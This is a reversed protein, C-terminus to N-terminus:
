GRPGIAGLPQARRAAPFPTLWAMAMIAAGAVGAGVDGLTDRALRSRGARAALHRLQSTQMFRVHVPRIWAVTSGSPRRSPSARTCSRAPADDRPGPARARVDVHGALLTCSAPERLPDAQRSRRRLPQRPCATRGPDFQSCRSSWGGRQRRRSSTEWPSTSCSPASRGHARHAPTTSFTSRTSGAAVVVRSRCSGRGPDGRADSTDHNRADDPRRRAATARRRAACAGARTRGPCRLPPSARRTVRAPHLALRARDLALVAHVEGLVRRGDRRRRSSKSPSARVVHRGAAGRLDGVCSRSGDPSGAFDAYAQPGGVHVFPLDLQWVKGVAGM